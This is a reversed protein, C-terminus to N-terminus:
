VRVVGSQVSYDVQVCAYGNFHDQFRTSIEDVEKFLDAAFWAPARSGDGRCDVTFHDERGTVFNFGTSRRTVELHQSGHGSKLSFVRKPYSLSLVKVKEMLIREVETLLADMADDVGEALTKLHTM